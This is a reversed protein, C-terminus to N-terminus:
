AIELIKEFDLPEEDRQARWRNTSQQLKAAGRVLFHWKRAFTETVEWGNDDWPEGWVILGNQNQVLVEQAPQDYCGSGVMDLCLDQDNINDEGYRLIGDRLEAYPFIDWQPHHAVTRQLETPELTPPLRRINSTATPSLPLFPSPYDDTYMLNLDLGLTEVNTILARYVNYYVLSILHDSPLPYMWANDRDNQLKVAVEKIEVLRNELLVEYWWQCSNKSRISVFASNASCSFPELAVNGKGRGALSKAKL